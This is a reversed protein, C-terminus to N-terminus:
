SQVENPKTRCLIGKRSNLKPTHRLTRYRHPNPNFAFPQWPTQGQLWKKKWQKLQVPNPTVPVGFIKQALPTMKDLLITPACSSMNRPSFAWNQPPENQWPLAKAQRLFLPLPLLSICPDRWQPPLLAAKPRATTTQPSHNLSGAVAFFWLLDEAERLIVIEHPCCTYAAKPTLNTTIHRVGCLSCFSVYASTRGIYNNVSSYNPKVRLRVWHHSIPLTRKFSTPASAQSTRNSSRRPVLGNCHILQLLSFEIRSDKQGIGSQSSSDNLYLCLAIEKGLAIVSVRDKIQLLPPGLKRNHGLGPLFGRNRQEGGPVKNPLLRDRRHGPQPHRGSRAIM